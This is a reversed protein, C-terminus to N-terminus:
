EISETLHCLLFPDNLEDERCIGWFTTSKDTQFFVSIQIQLMQFVNM